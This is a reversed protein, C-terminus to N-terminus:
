LGMEDAIAEALEVWTAYDDPDLKNAEALDKLTELADADDEDAKDGLKALQRKTYEPAEEEEEAAAHKVAKKGTKKSAAGADAVRERLYTNTYEDKKVVDFRVEIGEMADLAEGLDSIDDPVAIDIKELDGKFFAIGLETELNSWYGHSRGEFAPPGTLTMPVTVGMNDNKSVGISPSGIIATYGTGPPLPESGQMAATKAYMQKAAALREKISVKAM